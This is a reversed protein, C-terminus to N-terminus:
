KPRPSAKKIEVEHKFIPGLNRGLVTKNKQKTLNTRFINLGTQTKRLGTQLILADRQTDISRITYGYGVAVLRCGTWNMVLVAIM